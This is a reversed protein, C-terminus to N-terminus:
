TIPINEEVLKQKYLQLNKIKDRLDKERRSIAWVSFEHLSVCFLFFLENGTQSFISTVMNRWTSRDKRLMYLYKQLVFKM